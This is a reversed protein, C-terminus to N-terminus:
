VKHLPWYLKRPGECVVTELYSEFDRFAALLAEATPRDVANRAAPRNITITCVPGDTATLVAADGPM